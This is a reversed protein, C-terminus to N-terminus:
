GVSLPFRLGFNNWGDADTKSVLLQGKHAQMVRDVFWLGLGTGDADSAAAGPSRWEKKRCDAAVQDDIELGPLPKNKVTLTVSRQQILCHIMITSSPLSYKFSNEIVNSVCQEILDPDGLIRRNSATSDDVEISFDPVRSPAVHMLFRSSSARRILQVDRAAERAMKILNRPNLLKSGTLSNASMGSLKSLMALSWAVARTKRVLGRITAIRRIESSATGNALSGHPDLQQVLDDARSFAQWVPSRLQHSLMTLLDEKERLSKEIKERNNKQETIDEVFGVLRDTGDECIGKQVSESVWIKTGNKKRLEYEFEHPVDLESARIKAFYDAKFNQDAFRECGANTWQLLDEENSCGLLRIMAPNAQIFWGELTSLFVGESTHEVIQRYVRKTERLADRLLKKAREEDKYDWFVGLVGKVKSRSDRIPFKLVRVIDRNANANNHYEIKDLVEGSNLVHTSDQHYGRGIEGYVEEGTKGRIEDLSDFGDRKLLAENAFNIRLQRDVCFVPIPFDKIRNLYWPDQERIAEEIASGASIKRVVCLAGTKKGSGDQLRRGELAFPVPKGCVAFNIPQWDFKKEDNNLQKDTIERVLERDVAVDCLLNGVLDVNMKELAECAIWNVRRIRGDADLEMLGIPAEHFIDAYGTVDLFLGQTGAPNGLLDHFPRKIVHIYRTEKNPLPIEEWPDDFYGKDLAAKDGNQFRKAFEQSFLEIDKKGIVETRSKGITKCFQDSAWLFRGELDKRWMDLPIHRALPQDVREAEGFLVGVGRLNSADGDACAKPSMAQIGISVHRALKKLVQADLKDFYKEHDSELHLIGAPQGHIRLVVTLTSRAHDCNNGIVTEQAYDIPQSSSSQVAKEWVPYFCFGNTIRTGSSPVSHQGNSSANAVVLSKAERDWFCVVSTDARLMRRSVAAIEKVAEETGEVRQLKEVLGLLSEIGSTSEILLAVQGTLLQIKTLDDETFSMRQVADAGKNVLRLLGIFQGKRNKLPAFLVSYCSGSPIYDSRLNRVFKCHTIELDNLVFASETAAAHATLGVAPYSEVKLKLHEIDGPSQAKLTIFSSDKEDVLFVSTLESVFLDAIEQAVTALAEQQDRFPLSETLRRSTALLVDFGLESGSVKPMRHLSPEEAM